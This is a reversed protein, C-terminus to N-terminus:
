NVEVWMLVKHTMGPQCETLMVAGGRRVEDVKECYVQCSDEAEEVQWIAANPVDVEAPLDTACAFVERSWSLDSAKGGTSMESPTASAASCATLVLGAVMLVIRM